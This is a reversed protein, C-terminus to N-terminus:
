HGAYKVKIKKLRKDLARCIKLGYFEEPDKPGKSANCSNCLVVANDLDLPHGSSLPRHHDICLQNSSGCKFCKRGFEEMTIMEDNASYSEGANLSLDRRKRAYKRCQEHFNPRARRQSNLKNKNKRQYIRRNDKNVYILNEKRSCQKCKDHLKDIRSINSGFSSKNVYKQCGSCWKENEKHPGHCYKECKYNRRVAQRYMGTTNYTITKGCSPCDRIYTKLTTTREKTACEKCKPNLGDPAVKRIWFASKDKHKLCASCQKTSGVLGNSHSRACRSNRKSARIFSRKNTYVIIKGCLPCNRTYM